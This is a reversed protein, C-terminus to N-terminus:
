SLQEIDKQMKKDWRKKYWHNKITESDVEQVCNCCVSYKSAGFLTSLIITENQKEGNFLQKCIPCEFGFTLRLSIM